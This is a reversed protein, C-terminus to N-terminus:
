CCCRRPASTRPASAPRSGASTTTRSCGPPARGARAGAEIAARLASPTGPRTCCSSRSRRTSTSSTPRWSGREAPLGRRGAARRRGGRPDRRAGARHRARQALADARAEGGGRAAAPRVPEDAPPDDRLERTRSCGTSRTSASATSAASSGSACARGADGGRGGPQALRPRAARSLVLAPVLARRLPSWAPGGFAAMWNNPTTAGLHVLRPARPVVPARDLHPLARPRAARGARARAGGGRARRLGALTGFVPDVDTYDSVDYGFDAMPSPYIPSLWLADVGLWALHDLRASSARAPRRRRRRRLGPVLASLDPLRRADQWWM